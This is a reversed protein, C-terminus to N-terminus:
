FGGIPPDGANAGLGAHGRIVGSDDAFFSRTGTQPSLPSAVITFRDSEAVLNFTYGQRQGRALPEDILKDTLLETLDGYRYRGKTTWFVKEATVLTRTAAIAAAENAARKPNMGLIFVAISAIIALIAMVTLLEILTFGRDSHNADRVAAGGTEVSDSNYRSTVTM